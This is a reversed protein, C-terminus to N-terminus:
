IYIRTGIRFKPKGYIDPPYSDLLFSSAIIPIAFQTLKYLFKINSLFTFLYKDFDLSVPTKFRLIKIFDFPEKSIIVFHNYVFRFFAAFHKILFLIRLTARNTRVYDLAKILSEKLPKFRTINSINGSLFIYLVDLASFRTSFDKTTKDKLISLFRIKAENEDAIGITQSETIIIIRLYTTKPM